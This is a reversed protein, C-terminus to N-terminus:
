CELSLIENYSFVDALSDGTGRPQSHIQRTDKIAAAAPGILCISRLSVVAEEWRSNVDGGM